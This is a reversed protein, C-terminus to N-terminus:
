PCRMKVERKWDIVVRVAPNLVTSKPATASGVSSMKITKMNIPPEEPEVAPPMLVDVNARTKTLARAVMRPRFRTSSNWEVMGTSSRLRAMLAKKNEALEMRRPMKRIM